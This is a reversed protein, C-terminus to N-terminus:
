HVDSQHQMVSKVRGVGWRPRLRNYDARQHVKDAGDVGDGVGNRDNTKGVVKSGKSCSVLRHLDTDGRIDDGLCFGSCGFQESVRNVGFHSLVWLPQFPELM